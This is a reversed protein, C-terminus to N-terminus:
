LAVAGHMRQCLGSGPGRFLTPAHTHSRLTASSAGGSATLALGAQARCRRSVALM